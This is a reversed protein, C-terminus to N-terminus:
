DPIDINLAKDNYYRAVSASALTDNGAVDDGQDNTGESGTNPHYGSVTPEIVEEYYSYDPGHGGISHHNAKNKASGAPQVSFRITFTGGPQVTQYNGGNSVHDLMVADAIGQVSFALVLVMLMGLVIKRTTLNSM